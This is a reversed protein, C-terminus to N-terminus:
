NLVLEKSEIHYGNLIAKGGVIAFYFTELASGREYQTELGYAVTTGGRGYSVSWSREKESKALGLKRDIAALFKTLADSTTVQKMGDSSEAYIRDFQKAAMQERFHATGAKVAEVQEKSSCSLLLLCAAVICSLRYFKRM